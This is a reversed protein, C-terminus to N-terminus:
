QAHAIRQVTNVSVGHAAAIVRVGPRDKKRLDALIARALVAPLVAAGRTRLYTDRRQDPWAAMACCAPSGIRDSSRTTSTRRSSRRERWAQYDSSLGIPEDAGPPLVPAAFQCFFVVNQCSTVLVFQLM